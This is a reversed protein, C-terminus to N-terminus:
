AGRKVASDEWPSAISLVTNSRSCYPCVAEYETIGGSVRRSCQPIEYCDIRGCCHCQSIAWRYGDRDVFEMNELEPHVGGPLVRQLARVTDKATEAVTKATKAKSKLAIGIKITTAM